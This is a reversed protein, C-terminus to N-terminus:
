TDSPYITNRSKGGTKQLNRHANVFSDTDNQGIGGLEAGRQVVRDIVAAGTQLHLFPTIIQSNLTKIDQAVDGM